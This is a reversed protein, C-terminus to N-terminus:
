EPKKRIEYGLKLILKITQISTQRDYEKESDPLDSYPVLDPHKKFTDDRKPGYTWGDNMRGLSWVEHTNKAIMETLDHLEEPITQDSTDIPKPTYKEKMTIRNKDPSGRLPMGYNFLPTIPTPSHAPHLRADGDIIPSRWPWSAVAAGNTEVPLRSLGWPNRM